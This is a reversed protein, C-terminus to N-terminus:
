CHHSRTDSQWRRGGATAGAVARSVATGADGRFTRRGPAGERSAAGRAGTWGSCVRTWRWRGVGYPFTFVWSVVVALLPAVPFLGFLFSAGVRIPSVMYLLWYQIQYTIMIPLSVAMAQICFAIVAWGVIQGNGQALALVVLPLLLAATVALRSRWADRWIARHEHRQKRVFGAPDTHQQFLSALM